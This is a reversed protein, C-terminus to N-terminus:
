GFVRALYAFLRQREPESVSEPALRGTHWAAMLRLLEEVAEAVAPARASLFSHGHLVALHQSEEKRLWVPVAQRIRDGTSVRGAQILQLWWGAQRLVEDASPVPAAALVTSTARGPLFERLVEYDVRTQEGTTLVELLARKSFTTRRERYAVAERRWRDLKDDFDDPSISRGKVLSDTFPETQAPSLSDFQGSVGIIPVDPRMERITRAVDVGSVDREDNPDLNIDAIVIDVAPTGIFERLAEAATRVCIV